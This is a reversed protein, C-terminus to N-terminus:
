YQHLLHTKYALIPTVPTNQKSTDTYCTHKHLAETYSIFHNDSTLRRKGKQQKNQKRSTVQKIKIDIHVNM